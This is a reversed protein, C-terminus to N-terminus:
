AFQDFKKLRILDGLEVHFLIVELDADLERAFGRGGSGAKVKRVQAPQHGCRRRCRRDNGSM